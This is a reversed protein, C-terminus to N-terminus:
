NATLKHSLIGSQMHVQALQNTLLITQPRHGTTQKCLRASGPISGSQPARVCGAPTAWGVASPHRLTAGYLNLRASTEGNVNRLAFERRCRGSAGEAAQQSRWRSAAERAV